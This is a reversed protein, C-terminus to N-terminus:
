EDKLSSNIITPNSSSYNEALAKAISEKKSAGFNAWITSIPGFHGTNAFHALIPWFQDSIESIPWFHSNLAIEMSDVYDITRSIFYQKQPSSLSNLANEISDVYDM